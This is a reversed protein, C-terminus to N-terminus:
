PCATEGGGACVCVCVCQGLCVADGAQTRVPVRVSVGVCDCQQGCVCMCLAGVHVCVHEVVLECVRACDEIGGGGRYSSGQLLGPKGSALDSQGQAARAVPERVRLGGLLM